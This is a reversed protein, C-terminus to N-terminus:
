EYMCILKMQASAKLKTLLKMVDSGSFTLLSDQVSQLSNYCESMRAALQGKTAVMQRYVDEAESVLEKLQEMRKRM